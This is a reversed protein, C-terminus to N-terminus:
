PVKRRMGHKRQVEEVEKASFQRPSAGVPVSLERFYEDMGPQSFVWLVEVLKSGGHNQVAHWTGRPVYITAGDRAPVTKDGVVATAEGRHVFLIEDEHEHMHVPIGTGGAIQSAGMILHRSGTWELLRMGSGYLFLAVLRPAGGLRGIVARVEPRTLVVPLRRPRKARVMQAIAPLPKELV